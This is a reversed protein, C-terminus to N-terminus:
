IRFAIIAALTVALLINAALKGYLTAIRRSDKLRRFVAGIRCRARYRMKFFQIPRRRHCRGPIILTVGAARPKKRLPDADYGKDTISRRVTGASVIQDGAVQIESVIGVTPRIM